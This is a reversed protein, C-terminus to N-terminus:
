QLTVDALVRVASVCSCVSVYDSSFSGDLTVLHYGKGTGM